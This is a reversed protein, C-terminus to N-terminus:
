NLVNREKVELKTPTKYNSSIWELLKPKFNFTQGAPINSIRIVLEPEMDTQTEATQVVMTQSVADRGREGSVQQLVPRALNGSMSHWRLGDCNKVASSVLPHLIQETIYLQSAASESKQLLDGLVNKIKRLEEVNVEETLVNDMICSNTPSKPSNQNSPITRNSLLAQRGSLGTKRLLVSLFNASVPPGVFELPCIPEDPTHPLDHHGDHDEDHDNEREDENEDEEPKCTSPEQGLEFKMRKFNPGRFRMPTWRRKKGRNEPDISSFSPMADTEKFAKLAPLTDLCRREMEALQVKIGSILEDRERDSVFSPPRKIKYAGRGNMGTLKLRLALYAESPASIEELPVTSNESPLNDEESTVGLMEKDEEENQDDDTEDESASPIVEHPPDVPRWSKLGEEMMEEEEGPNSTSIPDEFSDSSCLTVSEVASSASFTEEVVRQESNAMGVAQCICKDILYKM